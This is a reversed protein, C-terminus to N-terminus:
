DPIAPKGMFRDIAESSFDRSLGKRLVCHVGHQLNVPQDYRIKRCILRTIDILVAKVDGVGLRYTRHDKLGSGKSIEYLDRPAGDLGLYEELILVDRQDDESFHTIARDKRAYKFLGKLWEAGKVENESLLAAERAECIEKFTPAPTQAVEVVSPLEKVSVEKKVLGYINNTTPSIYQRLARVTSTDDELYVALFSFLRESRSPHKLKRLAKREIQRIREGGVDLYTGTEELTLPNGDIGFRKRLVFSEREALEELARDVETAIQSRAVIDYIDDNVSEAFILEARAVEDSTVLEQKEFDEIDFLEHFLKGLAVMVDQINVMSSENFSHEKSLLHNVVKYCLGNERAFEAVSVYGADRIARLLRNNQGEKEVFSSSKVKQIRQM